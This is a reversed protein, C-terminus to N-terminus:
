GRRELVTYLFQEYRLAIKDWTSDRMMNRGREGMARRERSMMLTKMSQALSGADGSRFSIGAGNRTVYGLEPIDSVIVAKGSALAELSVISQTEHRSPQVIFLARGLIETKEDDSIWGMLKINKQVDDSLRKLMAKFEDRDRGDGAIILKILPFERTFEAYADLLLDLGKGYIDIRGLYLIDHGEDHSINLLQPAVGNPIIDMLKGERLSFKKLTEYSVFIFSGYLPPRLREMAYLFAGYLLNYKRFYLKGTYGQVQLVIPKETFRHLFTPIAPSFEEVIIDFEHDHKKVFQVAHYAYSLLTKTFSRSETGVFLHRLGNRAGDRVGPYKKCLFTIDHREKLYQYIAYARKGVGGIGFSDGESEYLLHLIRV